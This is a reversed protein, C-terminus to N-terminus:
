NANPPAASLMVADTISRGRVLAVKMADRSFTVDIIDEPESSYLLKPQPKAPDISYVSMEPNPGEIREQYLIASSDPLWKFIRWPTIDLRVGPDTSGVNKVIVYMRNTAPDTATYAYRKGDPSAAWYYAISRPLGDIGRAQGGRVSVRGLPASGENFWRFVVTEGDAEFRPYQTIGPVDALLRQNGGDIDMRWIQNFGARSSTFVIYRGDGSVHPESNDSDHPTLQLANRGDADAIWIHMRNNDFGDYVIRGDPSWTVGQHAIPERTIQKLGSFDPEGVWVRNEESRQATVINRGDRDVSVGVYSNVDNTIRTMRGGPLSVYYLQRRNAAPDTANVLLGNARELVALESIRARQRLLQSEDGGDADATMISWFEVGGVLERKLYYLKQGDASFRPERLITEGASSRLVREDSGDESNASILKAEATNVSSNPENDGYRVFLVRKGDPSLNGLHNVKEVVRRLQGGLTPVRYMTGHTGNREATIFYIHEGDRSFTPCDWYHVPQPPVIQIANADSVRRLWLSRDGNDEYTVYAISRGDPAISAFAINNSQSLRRMTMREFDIPPRGNSTSFFYWGGTAILLVIAAAPGWWLKSPSTAERYFRRAFSDMSVGADSVYRVEKLISHVDGMSRFRKGPSKALCRSVMKGIPPPVDPRLKELPEPDDNIVAQVVSGQNPGRFPRKGALAEYMVIGFSFIDSRNDVEAGEAQEPSMYSPTGIIQGPATIEFKSMSRSHAGREMQALGFDLIKPTGDETIMINGPKIDRHIVGRKHAHALAGAIPEFWELFRQLDLGGEPIHKDLTKGEVYEMTIVPQGPFDVSYITAVNPHNISAAAKAETRFRRLLAPESSLGPPLTKIAVPRGLKTDTALYVEGMGGFGIAREIRYHGVESGESLAEMHEALGPLFNGAVPESIFNGAAVGATLLSEVEARLEQDGACAEALFRSREPGDLELAANFLEGVKEWREPTM